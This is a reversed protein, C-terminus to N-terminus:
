YQVFTPFDFLVSSACRSFGIKPIKFPIPRYDFHRHARTVMHNVFYSTNLFVSLVTSGFIGGITMVLLSIKPCHIGADNDHNPDKKLFSYYPFM